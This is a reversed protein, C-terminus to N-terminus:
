LLNWCGCCGCQTHCTTGLLPKWFNAGVRPLERGTARHKTLLKTM